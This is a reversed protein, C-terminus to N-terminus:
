HKAFLTTQDIAFCRIRAVRGLHRQCSADVGEMFRALAGADRDPRARYHVEVLVAAGRLMVAGTLLAIQIADTRADLVTTCLTELEAALLDAAATPPTHATLIKIIPM